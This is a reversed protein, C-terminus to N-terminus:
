CDIQYSISPFLVPYFVRLHFLILYPVSSIINFSSFIRRFHSSSQFSVVVLGVFSFLSMLLLYTLLRGECALPRPASGRKKHTEAVTRETCSYWQLIPLRLGLGSHVRTVKSARILAEVLWLKTVQVAQKMSPKFVWDKTHSTLPLVVVGGSLVVYYSRILIQQDEKKLGKWCKYM